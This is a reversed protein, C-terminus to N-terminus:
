ICNAWPVIEIDYDYQAIYDEAEKMTVKGNGDCVECKGGNYVKHDPDHGCCPCGIRGIDHWGLASIFGHDPNTCTEKGDGGCEPCVAYLVINIANSGEETNSEKKM